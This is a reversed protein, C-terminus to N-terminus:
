SKADERWTDLVDAWWQLMQRRQPLYQAANYAGRVADREDHALQREIWDRNFGHENAETSFLRRFGHTTTRGRFGLRYLAFLMTNNSMVSDPKPGPFLRGSRFTLTHLEQLATVAQKPLPVLHETRMKMREEPIRWLAADPQDLKEFEEWRAGRLENTRVVTLLALTLALRTEADARPMQDYTAIARLLAGAELKPIAKHHIPRPPSKLASALNAAPDQVCHGAAIAYRYIASTYQRLRRTTEIVGRGEAIKLVALVEPPEIAQIPRAGLSPFLDVELRVRVQEGYKPTWDHAQNALWARAVREFTSADSAMASRKKAQKEACPDRGDDILALAEKHRQRAEVLSVRPYDGLSLLKEKGGFRFKFRWLRGGAPTVFCYLGDGDTLKYPKKLPKAHRIKADTLPM